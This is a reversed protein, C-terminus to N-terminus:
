LTTSRLFWAWAIQRWILFLSTSSFAIASLYRGRAPWPSFGSGRRGEVLGRVGFGGSASFRCCVALAYTVVLLM